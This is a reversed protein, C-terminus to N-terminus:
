EAQEDMAHSESGLPCTPFCKQGQWSWAVFSPVPLTDADSHTTLTVSSYSSRGSTTLKVAGESLGVVAGTYLLGAKAEFFLWPFFLVLACSSEEQTELYLWFGKTISKIPNICMLKNINRKWKHTYYGVGWGFIQDHYTPITTMIWIGVFM